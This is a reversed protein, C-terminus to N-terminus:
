WRDEMRDAPSFSRLRGRDVGFMDRELGLERLALLEIVENFTRVGMRRKLRKLLEYTGDKVVVTKPMAGEYGRGLSSSYFTFNM